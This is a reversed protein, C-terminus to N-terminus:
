AAMFSIGALSVYANAATTEADTQIVGNTRINIRRGTLENVHNTFFILDGSPRAGAPLTTITSLAPRTSTAKALGRLVILGSDLKTYGPASYTSGYAAWGSAMTLASTTPVVEPYLQRWTTGDGFLITTGEVLIQGRLPPRRYSSNGIAVPKGVFFRQDVVNAATAISSGAAVSVQALSMEYVDAEDIALAPASTGGTVYVATVSNATQSVRLVVRDVRTSGGGNAPVAIALDASNKYYFGNVLAEGAALTVNSTSNGTVKLATSAPDDSIVGDIQWRRAMRSWELETSAPAGAFPYSTQAM